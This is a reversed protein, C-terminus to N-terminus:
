GMRHEAAALSTRRARLEPLDKSEPHLQDSAALRRGYRQALPGASLGHALVSLLVTWTAVQLVPSTPSHAEEFQLVVMLTFVVSALGRPGFWGMIAVTDARFRLGSLAVAVPLMRVLTLSLLAYLLPRWDTSARVVGTVLVAGFITWVILSLSTGVTETFETAEALQSRTVAGFVIGGVFAAVFGNGGVAVACFFAALGLGLIAMKLSEASAWRRAEARQLLWGGAAGLASGVLVALGIETMASRLWHGESQGESALTMAIFVTVFPTALGDNLGSEVNLARRIRVPVALNNFIPLGLAADTPALVAGILAAMALDIEPFLLRAVLAGLLLTLPLGILLLRAPLAADDRLAKLNVTSADAFLLVALTVETLQKVGEAEPALHLVGLVADGLVFGAVVFVMPMSISWRGLRLAWASYAVILLTLIAIGTDM